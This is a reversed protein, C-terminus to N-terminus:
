EDYETLDYLNWLCKSLSSLLNRQQIGLEEDIWEGPHKLFSNAVKKSNYEDWFSKPTKWRKVFKSIKETNMGPLCYLIRSWVDKVTLNSSKHNLSEFDKFSTVWHRSPYQERLECLKTLYSPRDILAEPVVWLDISEHLEQLVETRRMLYDVSGIWDKTNELQFGNLLTVETKSGYIMEGYKEFNSQANYAEVLYIPDRLGSRKLRAKQEGFRNDQISACLDDLRKREVISDLVVERQDIKNVAIWLADGLVLVRRLVKIIVGTVQAIEDAKELCRDFFAERDSLSRVERHDIVLCIDYMGARWVEPQLGNLHSTGVKESHLDSARKFNLKTRQSPLVSLIDKMATNTAYNTNAGPSPLASKQVPTSLWELSAVARDSPSSPPSSSIVMCPSRSIPVPGSKTLCSNVVPSSFRLNSSLGPLYHDGYGPCKPITKSQRMWGIMLGTHNRISPPLPSEHLISHRKIPHLLQKAHFEVKYLTEFTVPDMQIDAESVDSVRTNVPDLYWFEFISGQSSTQCTQQLFSTDSEMLCNSQNQSIQGIAMGAQFGREKAVSKDVPYSLHQSTQSNSVTNFSVIDNNSSDLASTSHVISSPLDSLRKPGTPLTSKDIQFALQLGEKEALIVAIEFGKQTLKFKEPRGPRSLVLSESILKKINWATYHGSSGAGGHRSGTETYSALCYDQAHLIIESKTVSDRGKGLLIYLGVLIGWGGTRFNPVYDKPRSPRAPNTSRRKPLRDDILLHAPEPNNSIASGSLCPASSLCSRESTEVSDSTLQAAPNIQSPKRKRKKSSPQVPFPTGDQACKQRLRSAILGVTAPGVGRILLAEDPHVLRSHHMRIAKVARKFTDASRSGNRLAADAAEQVWDAWEDNLAVISPPMSPLNRHSLFFRDPRFKFRRPTGLSATKSSAITSPALGFVLVISSRSLNRMNSIQSDFRHAAQKESIPNPIFQLESSSEKKTMKVQLSVVRLSQLVISRTKNLNSSEFLGSVIRIFIISMLGNFVKCYANNKKLPTYKLNRVIDTDLPSNPNSILKSDRQLADGGANSYAPSSFPLMAGAHQLIGVRLAAANKLTPIQPPLNDSECFFNKKRISYPHYLPAGLGIDVPKGTTKGNPFRNRALSAHWNNLM